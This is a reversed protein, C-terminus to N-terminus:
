RMYGKLGDAVSKDSEARAKGLRKAWEIAAQEEADESSSGGAGPGPIKGYELKLAKEKADWAKRILLLANEVNECGNLSEAIKGATEEDVSLKGMVAKTNEAKAVKRRLDELEQAAKEEAEKKNAEDIEAQTRKSDLERRYGAAEKTAKNIAEKQRAIEAKLSEMQAKLAEATEEAGGGAGGKSDDGAPAGGEGGAGDGGAGKAGNDGSGGDGGASGGDDPSLFRPDMWYGNRNRVM